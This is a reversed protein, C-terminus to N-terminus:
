SGGSSPAGTAGRVGSSEDRTADGGLGQAAARAPAPRAVLALLLLALASLMASGPEPVFSLGAAASFRPASANTQDIDWYALQGLVDSGLMNQVLSSSPANLAIGVSVNFSPFGPDGFLDLELEAVAVLLSGFNMEFQTTPLVGTDIGLSNAWDLSLITHNLGPKLLFPIASLATSASRVDVGLLYGGDTAEEGAPLTQHLPTM